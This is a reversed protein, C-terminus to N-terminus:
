VSLLHCQADPNRKPIAQVNIQASRATPEGDTYDTNNRVHKLARLRPDFGEVARTFAMIETAHRPEELAILDRGTVVTAKFSASCATTSNDM